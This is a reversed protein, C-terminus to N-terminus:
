TRRLATSRRNNSSCSSRINGCDVRITHNQPATCNTSVPRFNKLFIFTCLQNCPPNTCGMWNELIHLGPCVRSESLIKIQPTSTVKATFGVIHWTNRTHMWKKIRRYYRLVWDDDIPVRTSTYQAVLCIGQSKGIHLVVIWASESLRNLMDRRPFRDNGTAEVTSIPCCYKTAADAHNWKTAFKETKFKTWSDNFSNASTDINSNGIGVREFIAPINGGVKCLLNM